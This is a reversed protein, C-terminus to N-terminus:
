ASDPAIYAGPLIRRAPPPSGDIARVCIKSLVAELGAQVSVAGIALGRRRMFVGIRRSPETMATPPVRRESSADWAIRSPSIQFGSVFVHDLTAEIASARMYWEVASTSGSPRTTVAPPSAAPM